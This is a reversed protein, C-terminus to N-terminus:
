SGDKSVISAPPSQSREVDEESDLTSDITFAIATLRGAGKVAAKDHIEGPRLIVAGKGEALRLIVM